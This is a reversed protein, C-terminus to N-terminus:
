RPNQPFSVRGWGAATWLQSPDFIRGQAVVWRTRRINTIDILPNADLVVLDARKGAEITGVERDLKMAKAPVSTATRLADMPTLGAQVALEISRLVSFGPVAGDTGAVIPVGADHLAKM